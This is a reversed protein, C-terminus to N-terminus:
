RVLLWGLKRLFSSMAPSQLNKQLLGPSVFFEAMLLYLKIHPINHEPSSPLRLDFSVYWLSTKNNLVQSCFYWGLNINGRNGVIIDALIVQTVEDQSNELWGVIPLTTHRTHALGPGALRVTNTVSNTRYSLVLSIYTASILYWRLRLCFMSFCSLGAIYYMSIIIIEIRFHSNRVSM